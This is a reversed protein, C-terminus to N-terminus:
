EVKEEAQPARERRLRQLLRGWLSWRLRKWAQRVADVEEGRPRYRGFRQRVYLTTILAINPRQEPLAEALHWAYEYPTSQWTPALGTRGAWRCMREYLGAVPGLRRLGRGIWLVWAVVAIAGLVALVVPTLVVPRRILEAVGGGQYGTGEPLDIEEVDDEPMFEDRGMPTAPDSSRDSGSEEEPPEEPRVPLATYGAATPEFRQWGYEPFYVEPWTHASSIPVVYLERDEDYEGAAYGRVVRAPIDQTRLLIVMASAFYDCYGEQSEFLFHDVADAGEPVESIGEQYTMQTRLYRQIAEAADYPNVLGQRVLAGPPSVSVVQDGRLRITAIPVTDGEQDPLLRIERTGTAEDVTVIQRVPLDTVIEGGSEILVGAVIRDALEGVRPPVTDPLLLYRERVWDPYGQGVQRLSVKDAVSFWSVVGYAREEALATRANLAVIDDFGGEEPPVGLEVVAPVTLSLPEAVAFIMNGGQRKPTIVQRVRIRARADIPIGTGAPLTWVSDGQATNIWGRGDYQDFAIGRLYENRSTRVELAVGPPSTRAGLLEFSPAYGRLRGEGGGGAEGFLREWTGRVERWPQLYRDWFGAAEESAATTPLFATGLVLVASFLIGAWLVGRSLDRPYRVNQRQWYQEQQRLLYYILFVLSLFAYYHFYRKPVRPGYFINLLLVVAPLGVTAWPWHSRFAFWAGLFGLLWCIYALIAIFIVVDEGPSGRLFTRGLIILRILLEAGLDEWGQLAPDLYPVIVGTGPIEVSRLVDSLQVVWAIGAVVGLLHALVRPLWRLRTLLFGFLVGVLAAPTVIRLAARLSITWRAQHISTTVTLMMLLVLVLSLWGEPLEWWRRM